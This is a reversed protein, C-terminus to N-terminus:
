GVRPIVQGWLRGRHAYMVRVFGTAMTIVATNISPSRGILAGEKNMTLSQVEFKHPAPLIFFFLCNNGRPVCRASIEALKCNELDHNM